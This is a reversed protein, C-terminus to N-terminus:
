EPLVKAIRDFVAELREDVSHEMREKTRGKMKNYERIGQMKAGLDSYQQIIWLLERDIGEDTLGAGELLCRIYASINPKILNESAMAAAGKPNKVGYGAAKIATVGFGGSNIYNVCFSKQKLTLGYEKGELSKFHFARPKRANRNGQKPM